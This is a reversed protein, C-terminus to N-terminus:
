KESNLQFSFQSLPISISDTFVNMASIIGLANDLNSYINVPEVFPNDQSAESKEKTLFYKFLDQSVSYVSYYIKIAENNKITCKMYEQGRLVLTKDSFLEDNIINAYINKNNIKLEAYINKMNALTNDETADIYDNYQAVVSDSYSQTITDFYFDKYKTYLLIMYFNKGPIDNLQVNINTKFSCNIYSNLIHSTDTMILNSCLLKINPNKQPFSIKKEINKDLASIKLTYNHNEKAYFNSYYYPCIPRIDYNTDNGNIYMDLTDYSFPSLKLKGLYNEDQYVDVIANTIFCSSDLHKPIATKSINATIKQGPILISYVVLKPKFTDKNYLLIDKHCASFLITIFILAINKKM